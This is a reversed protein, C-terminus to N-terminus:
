LPINEREKEKERVKETETNRRMRRRERNRERSHGKLVCSRCSGFFVSSAVRQSHSSSAKLDKTM